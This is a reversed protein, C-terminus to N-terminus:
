IFKKFINTCKAFLADYSQKVYDQKKFWERNHDIAPMSKMICEIQEPRGLRTWKTLSRHAAAFREIPDEIIDYSQDIGEFDTRYGM